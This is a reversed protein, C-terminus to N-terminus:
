PATWAPPEPSLVRRAVQWGNAGRQLTYTAVVEHPPQRGTLQLDSRYEGPAGAYRSGEWRERTAVTAHDDDRFDFSLFDRALLKQGQFERREGLAEIESRLDDILPETLYREFESEFEARWLARVYPETFHNIAAAAATDVTEEVVYSSIWGALPPADGADLRARWAEDTLRESSSQHFEYHSFVGGKTLVLRGEIPAVIYIPFVRGVAEELVAGGKVLESFGTAVDAIIAAQPDSDSRVNPGGIAHPNDDAASMTLAELDAGIFRIAEYEEATLSEGTLEKDAITELELAMLRVSELGRRTNEDVLDRAGLGDLTRQALEGLRAFLVPVPEVYGKPPEPEPPSLGGGGREAASQKAYLITDRKLETWSALATTLQKDLWAGSRMFPPMGPVPVDLLPRLSDLWSWYISRQWTADPLEAHEARLADLQETYGNFATAGAAELHAVARKSGLVAMLDLAMPLSRGRVDPEMLQDFMYADPVFRQGMFRFGPADAVVRPRPQATMAERFRGFAVEDRLSELQPSEGYASRLSELAASPLLDDSAEVLFATPEYIATWLESLSRGGIQGHALALSMLAAQRLAAPSDLPFNALGQWMMARFYRSLTENQTYHGRPRFQTWDMRGGAVTASADRGATAMIRTLDTEVVDAVGAPVPWDPHQLKVALAFYAANRRAAEAWEDNGADALAAYQAISTRLMEWDLRALRPALALVEARRLAKDFMLHFAHLVADSTVFIPIYDYRAREYLEYFEKTNGPSVVFGNRALMAAQEPSLLTSLAVNSLDPAIAPATVDPAATPKPPRISLEFTSGLAVTSV